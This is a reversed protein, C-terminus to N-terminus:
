TRRINNSITEIVSFESMKCLTQTDKSRESNQQKQHLAYKLFFHVYLLSPLKRIYFIFYISYSSPNAANSIFGNQIFFQRIYQLNPKKFTKRKKRRTDTKLAFHRIQGFYFIYFFIFFLLKPQVSSIYESQFYCNQYNQWIIQTGTSQYRSDCYRQHINKRTLIITLCLEFHLKYCGGKIDVIHVSPARPTWIELVCDRGIFLCVYVTRVYNSENNFTKVAINVPYLLRRCCKQQELMAYYNVLHLQHIVSKMKTM